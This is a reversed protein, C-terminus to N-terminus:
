IWADQQATREGGADGTNITGVPDILLIQCEGEASPKHEVGKPVVYMEGEHLDLQGDPFEIHMNGKLVIFVEDTTAHTHSPFDDGEIKVLKIHYENMQAIIKPSWQDSFKSFKDSFNVGKAEM